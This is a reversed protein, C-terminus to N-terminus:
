QAVVISSGNFVDACGLRLPVGETLLWILPKSIVQHRQVPLTLEREAVLVCQEIAEIRDCGFWESSMGQSEDTATKSFRRFWRRGIYEIEQLREKVSSDLLRS